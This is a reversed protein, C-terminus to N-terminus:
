RIGVTGEVSEILKEADYARGDKFVLTVDRIEEPHEIPDGEIVVLDAIKGVEVSGLEDDIRLSKAGNLTMIQIAELPTFGAEILLEYNRQDGFGPLAGGIGTPDVGAALLGGSKAFKYEFQQAKKFLDSTIRFARENSLDAIVERTQLYESQVEESMADLTRQELPPRDPVFLEYVALTSTMGVGNEIMTDITRQVQDSEIDLAALAEYHDSPCEDPTKSPHFDSDAFLGHELHDIGLGVAERYTVSCLHATVMVGHKHAEDIMAGLDDRTIETYAKLWSVGEDAWYAVVRRVDEEGSVRNMSSVGSGGTIYPGTVFMRPGPTRGADISNKLNIEAYPSMSGTTRITTVGSGLYLQPASYNLQISRESTTYFTHNHAGILGPLVTHGALNLVRADAPITIEDAPGVAAIRGDRIVVTHNRLPEAGTGDVVQVGRIVVVPADVQVFSQVSPSIEPQALLTVPWVALAAFAFLARARKMKNLLM